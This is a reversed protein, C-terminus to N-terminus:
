QPLGPSHSVAARLLNVTIANLYGVLNHTASYFVSYFVM